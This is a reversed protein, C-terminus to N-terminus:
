RWCQVRDDKDAGADYETTMRLALMTSWGGGRHWRGSGSEEEEVGTDEEARRRMPSWRRVRDDEETGADYETTM